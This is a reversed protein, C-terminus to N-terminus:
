YNLIVKLHCNGEVDSPFLYDGSLFPLTIHHIRDECVDLDIKNFIYQILETCYFSTTDQSNFDHDFPIHQNYISIGKSRIIAKQESTLQFRKIAAHKARTNQFFIAIPEIKVCDEEGKANPEGPVAHLICWNNDINLAIGCHSYTGCKDAAMVTNSILSSGRRFVIDGEQLNKEISKFVLEDKKNSKCAYLMSITICSILIYLYNRM